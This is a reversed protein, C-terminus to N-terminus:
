AEAAEKAQQLSAEAARAQEKANQLEAAVNSAAEEIKEKYDKILARREEEAKAEAAVAADQAADQEDARAEAVKAQVQDLHEKNKANLKEDCDKQAKLLLTKTEKQLAAIHELHAKAADSEKTAAALAAAAAAAELQEIKSESQFLANRCVEVNLKSQQLERQLEEEVECANQVNKALAVIVGNTLAADKPSKADDKILTSQLLAALGKRLTEVEDSDLSADKDKAKNLAAVFGEGDPLGKKVADIAVVAQLAPALAALSGKAGDFVQKNREKFAKMLGKRIGETGDTPAYLAGPALEENEAGATSWLMALGSQAYMGDDAGLAFRGLAARRDPDIVPTRAVNVLSAVKQRKTTGDVNAARYVQALTTQVFANYAESERPVLM